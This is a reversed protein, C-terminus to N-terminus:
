EYPVGGEIKSDISQLVALDYKDFTGEVTLDIGTILQEVDYKAKEVDEAWVNKTWEIETKGSIVFERKKM